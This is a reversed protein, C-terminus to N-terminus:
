KKKKAKAAKDRLAAQRLVFDSTKPLSYQKAPSSHSGGTSTGFLGPQKYQNIRYSSKTKGFGSADRKEALMEPGGYDYNYQTRNYSGMSSNKLGQKYKGVKVLQGKAGSPSRGARVPEDGKKAMARKPAAKKVMKKVAM